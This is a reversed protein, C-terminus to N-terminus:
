VLGANPRSKSELSMTVPDPAPLCPTIVAKDKRAVINRPRNSEREWDGKRKPPRNVKNLYVKCVADM